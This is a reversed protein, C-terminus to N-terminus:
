ERNLKEMSTRDEMFAAVVKKYVAQSAISKCEVQIFDKKEKDWCYLNGDVYKCESLDPM